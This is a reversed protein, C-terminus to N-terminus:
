TNAAKQLLRRLLPALQSDLEHANPVIMNSHGYISRMLERDEEHIQGDGSLFVGIVEIGQRRAEIVARHTDMIGNEYYDAAAPEGDSFVLLFKHKEGRNILLRTMERVAFGDRNDQQPALKMISAGAGPLLSQEFSVVTQFYNPCADASGFVPADEWFGTIQHPIRLELLTEHFLVIGKKTEDMKDYMSASCDVLLIFAADVERGPDNKKYFPRPKEETVIQVLKSGLRGFMLQDKTEHRKYLLIKQILSALKRRTHSIDQVYHRYSEREEESAEEEDLWIAKAKANLRSSYAAARRTLPRRVRQLRQDASSRQLAGAQAEGQGITMQENSFVSPRGQDTGVGAEAEREWRDSLGPTEQDMSERPWGAFDENPAEEPVAADLEQEESLPAPASSHDDQDATQVGEENPHEKPRMQGSPRIDFVNMYTDADFRAQAWDVISLCAEAATQTSDALKLRDALGALEREDMRGAADGAGALWQKLERQQEAAREGRLYFYVFGLLLGCWDQRDVSQKARDAMMRGLYRERFEFARRMGPREETILRELRMDEGIALLQKSFRPLKGGKTKDLYQQISRADSHRASGAARLYVDSKEGIWREEKDLSSWFLSIGIKGGDADDFYSAQEVDVTLEPMRALTQALDILQMRAFPDMQEEVLAFVM